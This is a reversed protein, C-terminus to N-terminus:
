EAHNLISQTASKMKELSNTEWVLQGITDAQNASHSNLFTIIEDPKNVLTVLHAGVLEETYESGPLNVIFTKLNFALGEFIATSFVGIQLSSEAFLQHLSKKSERGPIEVNPLSALQQYNQEWDEYEAPHLKYVIKYEPSLQRALELVFKALKKGILRQSVVLIQQKSKSIGDLKIKMLELHPFGTVIKNEDPIPLYCVKKWYEGFLFIYRPLPPYNAASSLNGYNYGLHYKSISGHQLEIVPINLKSAIVNMAMNKAEYHCVEVIVKPNIRELIKEYVRKYEFFNFIRNFYLRESEQLVDIQLDLKAAFLKLIEAIRTILQRDKKLIKSKLIISLNIADLHRINDIALPSYHRGFTRILNLSRYDELSQILYDCYIDYYYGEINEKRSTGLFLIDFEKLRFFPPHTLAGKLLNLGIRLQDKVTQEHHTLMSRALNMKRVVILAWWVQFRLLFWLPLNENSYTEFLNNESEIEIFRNVLEPLNM